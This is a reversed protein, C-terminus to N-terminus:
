VKFRNVLQSLQNAMNVLESAVEATDQASKASANSLESISSVGQNVHDSVSVQQQMSNLTAQNLQNMQEVQEAMSYLAEAAERVREMGENATTQATSMSAVARSAEQQLQEIMTEIEKTSEATRQSLTRVEDAVVAFGRGTDGARAAEIAANLALLNTQEAIEKIVGLVNGVNNSREDLHSIVESASNLTQHMTDISQSALETKSVGLQAVEKAQNSAHSSEEANNMVQQISGRLDAILQQINNTEQQQSQAAHLSEDSSHDIHTASSELKKALEVVKKLSNAFRETMNNLALAATGIEDRSSIEVKSTLDSDREIISLAQHMKQVPTIVVRRMMFGLIFLGVVFMAAQVAGMRLMNNFINQDLENLSYTIRIAGLVENEEAMHCTICDTGRYDKYALIPMLYTMYRGNSNKDTLLITEGQLVREDLQDQPYEHDYGRQYLKDVIPARMARAELINKDSLIKERVLERNNIAGSVMLMNLTDLYSESKEQLREEIMEMSMRKEASVAISIAVVLVILFIAGLTLNIKQRISIASDM